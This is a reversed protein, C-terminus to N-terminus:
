PEIEPLLFISFLGFIFYKRTVMQVSEDINTQGEHTCHMHVSISVRALSAMVVKRRSFTWRGHATCVDYSLFWTLMCKLLCFKLYHLRGNDGILCSYIDCICMCM